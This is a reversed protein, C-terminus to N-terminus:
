SSTLQRPRFARFYGQTLIANSNGRLELLLLPPNSLIHAESDFLIKVTGNSTIHGHVFAKVERVRLKDEPFHIVQLISLLLSIHIIEISVQCEPFRIITLIMKIM